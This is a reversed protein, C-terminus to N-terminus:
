APPLELLEAVIRKLAELEDRYSPRVPELLGQISMGLMATSALTRASDLKRADLGLGGFLAQWIRRTTTLVMEAQRRRISGQPHSRGYLILETYAVSSPQNIHQWSRDILLSVRERPSLSSVAMASALEREILGINREVVALLLSEKDGFQHAIAGWTVGAREAIRAASTNVLGEEAICQIVAQIVKERTDASREAQTRRRRKEVPRPIDPMEVDAKM